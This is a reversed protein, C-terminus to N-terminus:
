ILLMFPYGGDEDEVSEGPSDAALRELEIEREEVDDDEEKEEVNEAVDEQEDEQEDEVEEEVEVEVGEEEEEAKKEVRQYTHADFNRENAEKFRSRSMLGLPRVSVSAKTSPRPTVEAQNTARVAATFMTKPAAQRKSSPEKDAPISRCSM